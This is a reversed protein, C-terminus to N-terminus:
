TNGSCGQWCSNSTNCPNGSQKEIVFELM